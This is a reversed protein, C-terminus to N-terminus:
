FTAEIAVSWPRALKRCGAHTLHIENVWDGSEGTAGEAAAVLPLVSTDFCHVNPFRASDAAVAKLLTALRGIFLAAVGPWDASPVGYAVLSPMLWASGIGAGAPRPTPVAYTHMYIPQGASPGAERFGILQDFNAKLYDSFTDWGGDSVYRAVGGAAPGWEAATRLLRKNLPVAAGNATAPTAIAGILDNGGASLLIGDWFRATRGNLLELFRGDRVHEVMRVLKDGPAACNVAVHRQTFAMEQLLNGSALLNLTGITFWSDGEALFRKGFASLPDQTDPGTSSLQSADFHVLPIM